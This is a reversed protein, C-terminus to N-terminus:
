NKNKQAYTIRKDRKKKRIEEQKQKVDYLNQKTTPYTTKIIFIKSDKTHKIKIKGYMYGHHWCRGVCIYSNNAVLFWKIKKTLKRNCKSCTLINIDKDDFAATKDTYEMSIYETYHKHISTIADSKEKPNNYFDISYRDEIEAANLNQLVLATYKADNLANHFTINKPINLYNVAAELKVISKNIDILDAYIQQINYFKVPNIFKKMHYYDMNMQLNWLDLPGWTCFVYDNDCWKIFEKFVLEFPKGKMLTEEDYNLISRINAQLRKYIRPKIISSFEDILTFNNDLKVAGIEIIEFPIRPNERSHGYASQNWELDLIIYNM